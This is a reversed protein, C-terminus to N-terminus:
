WCVAGWNNSKWINNAAVSSCSRGHSFNFCPILLSIPFLSGDCSMRLCKYLRADLLPEPLCGPSTLIIHFLMWDLQRPPPEPSLWFRTQSREHWRSAVTYSTDPHTDIWNQWSHLARRPWQLSIMMAIESGLVLVMLSTSYTTRYTLKTLRVRTWFRAEYHSQCVVLARWYLISHWTTSAAARSVNVITDLEDWAVSICGYILHGSSHRDLEAMFAPGKSTRTPGIPNSIM